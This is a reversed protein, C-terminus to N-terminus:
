RIDALLRYATPVLPFRRHARRGALAVVATATAPRFGLFTTHGFTAGAHFYLAGRDDHHIFWGLSRSEGPAPHPVPARVTHLSDALASGAPDLHAALYTLLDDATSRVAGAPAFGDMRLQPVTGSRPLRGPPSPHTDTDTLRLPTLVRATLLDDFATGQAHALAHGLVAYGLNSYRWTGVNRPRTRAFATLVRETSYGAYANTSGHRAAHLYLSPPLRPLGATHTALHRLTLRRTAPRHAAAPLHRVVPDACRLEGRADLQALLLATFTKGASGIEFRLERRDCGPPPATGGTVVERHGEHLAAFVVDPAPVADVAGALVARLRHGTSATM